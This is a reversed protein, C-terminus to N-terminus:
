ALGKELRKSVSQTLQEPAPLDGDTYSARVPAQLMGKIPLVGAWVPLEKDEGDDKPPGSRIKASADEIKISVIATAKLEKRNPLRARQWQGPTIRETFHELALLKEKEDEILGGRGFLVASRFNVSHNFVTKALVLGDLIAISVSVENGEQLHRLLRSTSAGHILLRDGDRAHLAPIVFPRGDQVFGVHCIMAEDIIGYITERDYHGREPLRKVRNRSHVKFDSM